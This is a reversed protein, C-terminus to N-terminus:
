QESLISGTVGDVTIRASAGSATSAIVTYVYRGGSQCVNASSIENYGRARVASRVSSLSVIEGNSIVQRTQSASLCSQALSSKVPSLVTVVPILAIAAFSSLVARRSLLPTKERTSAKDAAAQLPLNTSTMLSTRTRM